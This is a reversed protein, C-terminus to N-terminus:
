VRTLVARELGSGYQPSDRRDCLDGCAVAAPLVRVHRWETVAAPLAGTFGACRTVRTVVADREAGDPQAVAADVAARAAGSVPAAAREWAAAAADSSRLVHAPRGRPVGALRRWPVAHPRADALLLPPEYGQVHVHGPM